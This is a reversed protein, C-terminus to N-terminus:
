GVHPAIRERLGGLRKLAARLTEDRKAFHLRVYRNEPEKFFSSGPVAGVGVLRALDDCFELDSAYGFESIDLMVYYAGEPM